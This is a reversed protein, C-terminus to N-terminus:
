TRGSVSFSQWDSSQHALGKIRLEGDGDVGESERVEIRADAVQSLTNVTREDHTTPDITFVGLGGAGDIRASLTHTFRYLTRLDVYMSLSSLSLLGSRVRGDSAKSYLSEYLASFKMGIGTLDSQTSVYRVEIGDVTRGVEQGTCDIVGFLDTELDTHSRCAALLRRSPMTTSVFLAGEGAATGSAVLARALAETRSFAPGALLLTTGAEIPALPVGDPFEYGPGDLGSM